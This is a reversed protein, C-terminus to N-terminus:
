DKGLIRRVSERELMSSRHAVVQPYRSVDVGDGELWQSIAFLYPDSISFSSGHVWPGKLLTSEILDFCHAMSVPVFAALAALADSDDTWRTGRRGHAHAVHVTSGLYSNFSQIRAFALPDVPLALTSGPSIQAIYVLIAQTETLVEGDVDLAPVRLRPNIRRYHESLQESAAFDITVQEYDLGSEELAIQTALGITGPSTYLIM